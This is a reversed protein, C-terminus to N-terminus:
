GQQDKAASSSVVHIRNPEFVVLEWPKTIGSRGKISNCKSASLEELTMDNAPANLVLAIGFDVIATIIVDERRNDDNCKAWAIAPTEAFYIAAGFMGREGPKMQDEKMISEGAKKTTAHYVIQLGIYEQNQSVAVAAAPNSPNNHAQYVKWQDMVIKARNALSMQPHATALKSMENQYFTKFQANAFDTPRQEERHHRSRCCCMYSESTFLHFVGISIQSRIGEPIATILQLFDRRKLTM